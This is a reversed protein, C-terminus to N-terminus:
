KISCQYCDNLERIYSRSALAGQLVTLTQGAAPARPALHPQDRRRRRAPAGVVRIHARGAHLEARGGGEGPFTGAGSGGAAAAAGKEEERGNAGASAADGGSATPCLLSLPWIWPVSAHWM